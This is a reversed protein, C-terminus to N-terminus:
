DKILLNRVVQGTYKISRMGENFQSEFTYTLPATSGTGGGGTSSSDDDSCGIFLVSLMLTYLTIKLM